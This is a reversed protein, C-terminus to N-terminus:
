RISIFTRGNKAPSSLIVSAKGIIHSEPILGWARSDISNYRNDGVVFFYNQKFTYYRVPVTNLFVSDNRLKLVAKEHREILQQYLVLNRNNLLISDGKRPIWLPGFFDYNWTISPHHPYVAPTYFGEDFTNIKVSAVSGLKALSDATQASMFCTFKNKDSPVAQLNDLRSKLIKDTLDGTITYHYFIDGSIKSSLKNIHIQGNIIQISDGPLALCRKICEEGIDVPNDYNLPHNFVIVDNHQISSYGFLRLYPFQLWEIFKKQGRFTLALPTIPIRPGYSLKNVLILDGEMLTGQM